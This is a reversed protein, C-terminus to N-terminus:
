VFISCIRLHLPIREIIAMNKVAQFFVQVKQNWIKNNKLNEVFDM